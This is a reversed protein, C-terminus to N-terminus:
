KKVSIVITLILCVVTALAIPLIYTLSLFRSSDAFSLGAGITPFFLTGFLFWGATNGQNPSRRQSGVLWNAYANKVVFWLIAAILIGGGLLAIEKTTVSTPPPEPPLDSTTTGAGNTSQPPLTPLEQIPPLTTAKETM